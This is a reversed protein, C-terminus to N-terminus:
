DAHPTAPFRWFDIMSSSPLSPQIPNELVDISDEETLAIGAETTNSVVYSLEPACFIERVRARDRDPYLFEPVCDIIQAEDVIQGEKRGRHLVTYVGQQGRLVSLPDTGEPLARPKVVAINGLPIGHDNASQWLEGIFARLFNGEGFQVTRIPRAIPPHLDIISKM